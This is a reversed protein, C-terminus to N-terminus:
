IYGDLINKIISIQKNIEETVSQDKLLKVLKNFERKLQKNSIQMFCNLEEYIDEDEM